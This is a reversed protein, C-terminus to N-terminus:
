SKNERVKRKWEEEGVIDIATAVLTEVLVEVGIEQLERKVRFLKQYAESSFEEFLIWDRIM